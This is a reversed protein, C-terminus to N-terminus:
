IQERQEWMILIGKSCKEETGTNAREGVDGEDGLEEEGRGERVERRAVKEERVGEDRTDELAPEAGEEGAGLLPSRPDEWM